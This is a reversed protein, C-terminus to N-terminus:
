GVLMLFSKITKAIPAVTAAQLSLELLSLVEPSEALAVMVVSGFVVVLMVGPISVEPM